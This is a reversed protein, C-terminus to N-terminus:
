RGNVKDWQAKQEAMYNETDFNYWPYDKCKHVYTKLIERAKEIEDSTVDLSKFEENLEKNKPNM